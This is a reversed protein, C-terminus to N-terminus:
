LEVRSSGVYVEVETQLHTKLNNALRHLSAEPIVGTIGEKTIEMLCVEWLDRDVGTIQAKTPGRLTLYGSFGFPGNKDLLQTNVFSSFQGEQLPTAFKITSIKPLM